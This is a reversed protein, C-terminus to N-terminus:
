PLKHDEVVQRAAESQMINHQTPLAAALKELAEANRQLLNSYQSNVLSHIAGARVFSAWSLLAGLIAPLGAVVVVALKFANDSM